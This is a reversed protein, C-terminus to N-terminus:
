RAEKTASPNALLRERNASRSPKGASSKILWRPPVLHAASITVDIEMAAAVVAKRLAAMAAEGETATEAAVWVRQTGTEEDDIGFAVVRGPLIGPVRGVADEIDEPYLNKGAVIILDKQRGIVYVEGDWIFGSDGSWYKGDRLVAATKEPSNRYGDFLSDSRVVLEGVFGPPLSVGAADVVELACGEIPYGSSVVERSTEANVAPQYRGAALAARDAVLVRPAQAPSTQTVAFTTEAMAYSAALCEPRLGARGMRQAFRQMGDARVPESCNVLLRLSDLRLADLEEDHVRETMVHFAFNPLWGLTGRETSIADLFLVPAAIWEFPDIQITPIGLALPLHFAAILGMDHYLPLWSVVRDTSRADIARGYAEVHGLVARHSLMVGKQLGTTGSSHQLLCPDAAHARSRASKAADEVASDPSRGHAGDGSGAAAEPELPHLVGRVSASDGVALPRVLPDLEAETLLWDLGSHRAMGRLGERFKEPHLRPNPYALVAPIAGAWEVAMYLAYFEPHHRVMIACVDGRRIGMARLRGALVGARALLPGWHWRVPAEGARLHIVAEAHPRSDAHSRWRDILTEDTEHSM